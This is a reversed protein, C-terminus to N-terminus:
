HAIKQGSETEAKLDKLLIDKCLWKSAVTACQLLGAKPLSRAKEYFNNKLKTDKTLDSYLGCHCSDICTSLLDDTIPTIIQKSEIDIMAHLPQLMSLAQASTLGCTEKLAGDSILM